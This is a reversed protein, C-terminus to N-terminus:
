RYKPGANRYLMAIITDSVEFIGWFPIPLYEPKDVVSVPVISRCM